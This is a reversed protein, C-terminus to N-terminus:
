KGNPAIGGAFRYAMPRYAPERVPSERRKGRPVARRPCKACSRIPGPPRRTALLWVAASMPWPLSIRSKNRELGIKIIAAAPATEMLFPM